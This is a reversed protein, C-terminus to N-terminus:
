IIRSKISCKCMEHMFSKQNKAFLIESLKLSIATAVIGYLLNNTATPTLSQGIFSISLWFTTGINIIFWALLCLLNAKFKNEIYILATDLLTLFIEMLYVFYVTIIGLFVSGNNVNKLFSWQDFLLQFCSLIGIAWIITHIIPVVFRHIINIKKDTM